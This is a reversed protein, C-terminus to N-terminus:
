DGGIKNYEGDMFTSWAKGDPSVEMRHRYSRGTPFEWVSRTIGQANKSTLTWVSGSRSGRFVNAPSGMSDFWYMVYEGAQGDWTFVGHGQYTPVDNHSQFYDQVVSFGGLAARNTIYGDAKTTQPSWPSPPMTEVGKWTGAFISLANHEPGPKPM